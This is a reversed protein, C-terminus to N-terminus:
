RLYPDNSTLTTLWNPYEVCRKFGQCTALWQIQEHSVLHVESDKKNQFSAMFISCLHLQDACFCRRLLHRLMLLITEFNLFDKSASGFPGDIMVRPLNTVKPYNTSTGVVKGGAAIDGRDGDALLSCSVAKALTTTFDGVIRIHVSIYDEEPASLLHIYVFYLLLILISYGINGPWRSPIGNSILSKLVLFSSINVPEPPPRKKRSRYNWSTWPISSRPSTLSTILGFKVLRFSYHVFYAWPSSTSRTCISFDNM